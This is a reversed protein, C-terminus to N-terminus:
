DPPTVIVCVNVLEDVVIRTMLEWRVVRVEVEVLLEEDAADDM